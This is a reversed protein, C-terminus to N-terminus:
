ARIGLYELRSSKLENKKDIEAVNNHAISPEIMAYMVSRLFGFPAANNSKATILGNMRGPVTTDIASRDAKLPLLASLSVPVYIIMMM